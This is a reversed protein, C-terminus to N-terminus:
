DEYNAKVRRVTSPSIDMQQAIKGPTLGEDLRSKIERNRQERQQITLSKRAEVVGTNLSGVVKRAVQTAMTEHCHKLERRISALENVMAKREKQREREIKRQEEKAGELLDIMQKIPELNDAMASVEKPPNVGRRAQIINLVYRFAFFLMALIAGILEPIPPQSTTMILM